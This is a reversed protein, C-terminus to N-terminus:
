LGGRKGIRALVRRRMRDSMGKANEEVASQLFKAQGSPHHSTTIEHVYVAYDTGYALTVTTKGGKTVPTKVHASARLPGQDVPTRRVSVGMVNEGEEMLAAEVDKQVVGPTERLFRAFADKGDWITMHIGGRAGRHVGVGPTQQVQPM